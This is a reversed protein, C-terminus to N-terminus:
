WQKPYTRVEQTMAALMRAEIVPIPEGTCLQMYALQGPEQLLLSYAALRHTALLEDRPPTREGGEGSSM